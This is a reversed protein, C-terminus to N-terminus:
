VAVRHHRVWSEAAALLRQRTAEDIRCAAPARYILEDLHKADIADFQGRGGHSNLWDIWAQGQLGAVETRPFAMLACGRLLLPLDGIADPSRAMTKLRALADRRYSERRWRRWRWFVLLAALLLIVAALLYWGPTEPWYAVPEPLPLEKLGWMRDSGFIETAIRTETADDTM